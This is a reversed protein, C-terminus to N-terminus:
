QQMDQFTFNENPAPPPHPDQGGRELNEPDVGSWWKLQVESM